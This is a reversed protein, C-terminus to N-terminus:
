GTPPPIEVYRREGTEPKFYVQVWRATAPDRFKENTEVWGPGLPPTPAVEKYRVREFITGIVLLLGMGGPWAIFPVPASFVAAVLAIALLILGLVLAFATLPM